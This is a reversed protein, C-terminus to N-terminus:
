KLVYEFNIKSSNKDENWKILENLWLFKRLIENKEYKKIETKNERIQRKYRTIENKVNKSIDKLDEMGSTLKKLDEVRDIIGFIVNPYEEDEPPVKPKKFPNIFISDDWDYVFTQFLYSNYKRLKKKDIKTKFEKFLNDDILIRPYIAKKSEILHSKILGESFIMNEDEYHKGSSIAGRIYINKNFLLTQYMRLMNILLIFKAYFIDENEYYPISISICDSFQKINIKIASNNFYNEFPDIVRKKSDDLASKLISLIQQDKHNLFNNIREKFGLIDLFAVIHPRMEPEHNDNETNLVMLVEGGFLLRM